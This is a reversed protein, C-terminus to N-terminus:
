SSEAIGEITFISSCKRCRTTIGIQDDRIRYRQGCQPCATRIEEPPGSGQPAGEMVAKITDADLLGDTTKSAEEEARRKKELYSEYKAFIVGCRLCENLAPNNSFGCKPCPKGAPPAVRAPGGPGAPATVGRPDTPPAAKGAAPEEAQPHSDTPTHAM